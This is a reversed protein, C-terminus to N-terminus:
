LKKEIVRRVVENRKRDLRSEMMIIVRKAFVRFERTGKRWQM